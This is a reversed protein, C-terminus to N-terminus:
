SRTAVITAAPVGNMADAGTSAGDCRMDASVDCWGHGYPRWGHRGGRDGTVGAAADMGWACPMRRSIRPRFAPAGLRAGVADSWTTRLRNWMAKDMRGAFSTETPVGNMGDAETSTRSCRADESVYGDTMETPAGDMTGAKTGRRVAAAADMGWACPMRRSMRPRFAPAGLRAGVADSWTTRLRNWMEKDMRDAFSTETPVGNMADAGTSRHAAHKGILTSADFTGNPRGM